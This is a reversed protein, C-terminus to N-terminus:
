RGPPFDARSTGSAHVSSSNMLEWNGTRVCVMYFLKCKGVYINLLHTMLDRSPLDPAAVDSMWTNVKSLPKESEEDFKQKIEQAAATSIVDRIRKSATNQKALEMVLRTMAIGSSPGLYRSEENEHFKTLGGGRVM